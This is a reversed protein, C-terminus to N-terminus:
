ANSALREIIQGEVGKFANKFRPKLAKKVLLDEVTVGNSEPSLLIMHNLVNIKGLLILRLVLKALL